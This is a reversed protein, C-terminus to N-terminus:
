GRPRRRGLHARAVTMLEARYTDVDNSLGAGGVGKWLVVDDLVDLRCDSERLRVFWDSDGGIRLRDDFPGVREFVDRRAMLAGPTYGPRPIGITARHGATVAGGEVPVTVIHGVVADCEPHRVLHELRVQLSGDTWRDDSDCFAVLDGHVARVAQNRAASLGFGDQVVVRVGAVGAALAATGDTSAGDLVIVDGPAPEQDLLSRLTAAITDAGNRVAVIVGVTPDATV